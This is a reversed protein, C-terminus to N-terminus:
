VTASEAEAAAAYQEAFAKIAERIQTEAEQTLDSTERLQELVDPRRQRVFELFQQEWQSVDGTPVKDLYGRSGAYIVLIQDVVELPKYQGQKLLEVMRYGRDLRSQTAADLDTGLQAFAELERFAALDLRLGGAVKKRAKNQAAAGA